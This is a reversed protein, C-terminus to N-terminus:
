LFCASLGVLLRAVVINNNNNLLFYIDYCLNYLISQFTDLIYYSFQIYDGLVDGLGRALTCM